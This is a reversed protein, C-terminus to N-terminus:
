RSFQVSSEGRGICQDVTADPRLAIEIEGHAPRDIERELLPQRALAGERGKATRTASVGERLAGIPDVEIAGSAIDLSTM